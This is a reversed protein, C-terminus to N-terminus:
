PPAGTPAVRLTSEADGIRGSRLNPPLHGSDGVALVRLSGDREVRIETLSAHSISLGLWSAPDVALAKAVLWRTVNGHCVVLEHREGQPLPAFLRAALRDLQASCAALDDPKERAMIDQRRTPPTCEALDADIRVRAGGLDAAIVAATERARTLPSAVIDDFRAPWARLRAALLRAQAIGIPVLAKGEADDRADTTDYAGHRVLYLTRVGGTPAADAAAAQPLWPGLAIAAAMALSAAVTRAACGRAPRRTAVM